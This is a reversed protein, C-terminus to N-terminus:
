STLKQLRRESSRFATRLRHCNACVLECKALEEEIDYVTISKVKFIQSITFRKDDGLHDFDMVISPYKNGCDSCPTSEKYRRIFATIDATTAEGFKPPRGRTGMSLREVITRLASGSITVPNSWNQWFRRCFGRLM